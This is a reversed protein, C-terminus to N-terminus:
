IVKLQTKGLVVKEGDQLGNNTGDYTLGDETIQWGGIDGGPSNLTGGFVASGDANLTFNSAKVTLKNNSFDLYSNKDGIHCSTSTLKGTGSVTFAGKNV